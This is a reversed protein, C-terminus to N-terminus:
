NNVSALKEQEKKLCEDCIVDFTDPNGFDNMEMYEEVGGCICCTDFMASDPKKLIINNIESETLKKGM